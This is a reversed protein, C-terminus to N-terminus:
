LGHDVECDSTAELGVYASDAYYLDGDGGTIYNSNGNGDCDCGDNTAADDHAILVFM